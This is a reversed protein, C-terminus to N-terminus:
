RPLAGAAGRWLLEIGDDYPLLMMGRDPGADLYIWPTRTTSMLLSLNEAPGLDRAFVIDREPLPPAQWSLLELELVGFRDSAAERACSLDPVRSPDIRVVNGPSLARPELESAFGPLPQLNLAPSPTDMPGSRWQAYQHVTCADNRRLATEISDRRMGTAVLRNATRSSWSGHVMVLARGGDVNPPPEIGPSRAGALVFPAFSLGSIMTVVITWRILRTFTREDTRSFAAVCALALLAMWAPVSEFLMRPGFKSGHHWYLSNAIVATAAWGIITPAGRPVVKTWLLVAVLVTLPLPSELLRVGLQSLDAGTYGVAELLGYDNGWPDRHLGLGHSPGFAVTYGLRLPHGFLVQNWWFLLAAFPAGGSVLASCRRFTEGTTWARARPWWVISVITASCALGIWPRACVAVGVSAGTLVTWRLAGNQAATASFLVLALGAAATTHSLHTSGLLLWFPSLLLLIGTLRGTAAGCLREVGAAGAVTAVTTAVPGVVWPAGLLVGLALLLTHLPPYVSAWGEPTVIGNQAVWFAPNGALPITARGAAVSQAHLM